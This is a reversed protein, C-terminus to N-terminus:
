RLGTCRRAPCHARTQTRAHELCAIHKSADVRAEGKAGEVGPPLPLRGSAFHALSAAVGDATLAMAHAHEIQGAKEALQPRTVRESVLMWACAKCLCRLGCLRLPLLERERARALGLQHQRSGSDAIVRSAEDFSQARIYLATAANHDGAAEYLQGAAQMPGSLACCDWILVALCCCLATYQRTNSSSM